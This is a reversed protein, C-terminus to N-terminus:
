DSNESIEKNIVLVLTYTTCASTILISTILWIYELAIPQLTGAISVEARSRQTQDFNVLEMWVVDDATYKVTFSHPRGAPINADTTPGGVTLIRNVTVLSSFRFQFSIIDNQKWSLM